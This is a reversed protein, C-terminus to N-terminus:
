KEPNALQSFRQSFQIMARTGDKVVKERWRPDSPNFMEMFAIHSRKRSSDNAYGFHHGQNEYIMNRLSLFGGLITQSDMTGFELTMPLVDKNAFVQLTFQEFSGSAEYFDKDDGYDVSYDFFVQDFGPRSQISKHSFLHMKGREGYGTHLDLHMVKAYPRGVRRFESSLLAVHPEAQDGGFYIGKPNQYQGGVAIQAIQKKGHTYLKVLSQLFLKIDAWLSSRLPHQPNLYTEFDAYAQSHSQFQQHQASLNRNLDVNNETVRRQEAFGYPNVGHVFLFGTNTLTDEPLQELFSFILASGTYAEVGHVGSTIIVLNQPESQAPIYLTDISLHNQTSQVLLRNPEVGNWKAQLTLGYSRFHDRSQEYSDPYLAQAYLYQGFLLLPWLYTLIM